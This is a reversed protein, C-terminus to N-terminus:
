FWKSWKSETSIIFRGPAIGSIQTHTHAFDLAFHMLQREPLSFIRRIQKNQRTKISTTSKM